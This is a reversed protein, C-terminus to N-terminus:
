SFKLTRVRVLFMKAGVCPIAYIVFGNEFHELRVVVVGSFFSFFQCHIRGDLKLNHRDNFNQLLNNKILEQSTFRSLWFRYNYSFSNHFMLNIFIFIRTSILYICKYEIHFLKIQTPRLYRTSSWLTISSLYLLFFFHFSFYCRAVIVNCNKICTLFHSRTENGHISTHRHRVETEYKDM